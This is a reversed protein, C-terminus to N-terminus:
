KNFSGATQGWDQGWFSDECHTLQHIGFILFYRLIPTNLRLAYASFCQFDINLDRM